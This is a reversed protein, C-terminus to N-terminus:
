SVISQIYHHVFSKMKLVYGDTKELVSELTNPMTKYTNTSVLALLPCIRHELAKLRTGRHASLVGHAPASNIEKM